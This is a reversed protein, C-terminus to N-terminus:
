DIRCREVLDHMFFRSIHFLMKVQCDERTMYHNNGVENIMASVVRYDDEAFKLKNEIIRLKGVLWESYVGRADKVASSKITAM